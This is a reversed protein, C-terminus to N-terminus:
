AALTKRESTLYSVIYISATSFIFGPILSDVQFSLHPNILPWLGATLGGTIIAAIAGYKNGKKSYLAVLILPGFSAGLGSWAYHVLTYISSLKTAAIFFAAITAIIICLRSVYLLHKSSPTETYLKKYVDETIISSLILLQSCMVNITAALVACLILGTLFPSFTEKVMEVFIMQPDAIGSKFFSIGVLGVFTAAILTLIMWAMGVNRSKYIEDTNKIGMFKTVIHPQGFYGLGWGFAMVLISLVDMPSQPFFKLTSEHVTLQDLLLGWNEWKNVIFLPTVCLVVLLFIGQFFDIWALTIFGGLVVYFVVILSAISICTIYSVGFLNEGLLGLGILGACVYVVYFVFSFLASLIRLLGSEDQYRV